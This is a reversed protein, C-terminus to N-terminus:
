EVVASFAEDDDRTVQREGDNSCSCGRRYVLWGDIVAAFLNCICFLISLGIWWWAGHTATKGFISPGWDKGPRALYFQIATIGLVFGTFHLAAAGGVVVRALRQLFWSPLVATIKPYNGARIPLIISYQGYM